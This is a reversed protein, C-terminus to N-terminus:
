AEEGDAGGAATAGGDAFGSRAPAPAAARTRRGVVAIAPAGGAVRGGQLTVRRAGHQALAAAFSEDATACVLTAGAAHAAAIGALARARDAASLGAAPEDLLALPPPGALARALLFLRREGDSLEGAPRAALDALAVAALAAEAIERAAEVTEGRVAPALMVNELVTERAVFPPDHPLYAVNRRVFPLATRQLGTVDHADIFVRGATPIRHAAAIALLASKGAGREGHLAVLEGPRANFTVDDLLPVGGRQWRVRELLLM